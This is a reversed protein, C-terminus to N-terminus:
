PTTIASGSVRSTSMAAVRRSRTPPTLPLASGHAGCITEADVGAAGERIEDDGIAARALDLEELRQRRRGVRGLGDLVAQLQDGVIEADARRIEDGVAIEADVAGRHAEVRQDGMAAALGAEDAGRAVLVRDLDAVAVLFVAEAVIGFVGGGGHQHRAVQALAHALAHHGIARHARRHFLGVHAGGALQEALFAHLGDGDGEDPRHQVGGM